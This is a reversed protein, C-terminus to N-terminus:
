LLLFAARLDTKRSHLLAHFAVRIRLFVPLPRNQRDGRSDEKVVLNELFDPPCVKQGDDQATLSLIEVSCVKELSKGDDQTTAIGRAEGSEFFLSPTNKATNAPVLVKSVHKGRVNDSVSDRTKECVAEESFPTKSSAHRSASM